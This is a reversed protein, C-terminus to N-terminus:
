PLAVILEEIDEKTNYIHPSIRIRDGRPIVIIKQRRLTAAIEGASFGMKSQLCVIPSKESTLRSSVIEYKERDLNECLFDTLELLYANIKEVGLADFLKLCDEVAYFLSSAFTGTEWALAGPKFEQEFDNFDEHHLASIWGVLTPEIRARARDSLYLFGIGEPSLMWKHFAGAAADFLDVEANLPNAGMAQIVDVVFLADVARAAKAIKPLDARFGSAYQVASIAVVKTKDDILRCFEDLDIRGHREPCFRLEVKYADRIRRWPYVNSPFENQFTVINEGANWKLGNAICSLGDSTNRLFAIQESRVNLLNATMERCNEKAAVWNHYNLSGNMQVDHLQKNMAEIATAPPPSCSAHNLYVWEKTIPFLQRLNKNM